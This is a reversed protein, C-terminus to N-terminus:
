VVQYGPARGVKEPLAELPLWAYESFEREGHRGLDIEAESGYFYMLCWKQTQGRYRLRADPRGPMPVETPFEYDLWPDMQVVAQATLLTRRGCRQVKDSFLM